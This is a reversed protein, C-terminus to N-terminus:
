ECVAGNIFKCTSADCCTSNKGGPDCDEGDEKIGNGCMQLTQITRSGPALVVIFYAVKKRQYVHQLVVKCELCTGLTPYLGCITTISCPSFSNSSVNNTPNMIYTGSADCTTDSLPCCSCSSGSCPCTDSTCDHIAGFGHGIEHAVVKWEDRVTSKKKVNLPQGDYESRTSVSLRYVPALYM